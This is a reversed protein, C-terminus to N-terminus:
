EGSSGIGRLAEYRAIGVSRILDALNERFGVFLRVDGREAAADMDGLLRTLETDPTAPEVAAPVNTDAPARSFMTTAAAGIATGVVFVAIVALWAAGAARAPRHTTAITSM